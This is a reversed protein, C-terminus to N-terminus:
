EWCEDGCDTTCADKRPEKTYPTVGALARASVGTWFRHSMSIKFEAGEAAVVTLM